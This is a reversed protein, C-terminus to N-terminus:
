YRRYAEYDGNYYQGRREVDHKQRYIDRSLNDLRAQLQNWESRSMRGDAMFYQENRQIDRLEFRLRAYERRTLEGSRWGQEIRQALRYERQNISADQGDYNAMAPATVALLAIATILSKM